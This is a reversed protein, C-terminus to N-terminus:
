GSIAASPGRHRRYMDEVWKFGTRQSQEERFRMFTEPLPEPVMHPAELPRVLPFLLAAATLDAVSFGDGALYGSPQLETEVRDIAEETKKRAAQADKENIGYRLRLMRKGIPATAKMATKVARPSSGLAGDIFDAPPLHELAEHFLYRRIYPGLEEDFFDELELARSRAAPDGPYLPPEPYRRELAEIIRTSDGIAEGDLRLVPFTTKGRTLVFAWAMHMMPPPAKRIHPVGKYDLAWRAKENYHSIEIHYLVPPKGTSATTGTEHATAAEM